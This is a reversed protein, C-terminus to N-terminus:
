RKAFRPAAEEIADVIAVTLSERLEAATYHKFETRGDDYFWAQFADHDSNDMGVSVEWAKRSADREINAFPQAM